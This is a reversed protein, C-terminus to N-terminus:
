QLPIAPCTLSIQVNEQTPNSYASNTQDRQPLSALTVGLNMSNIVNASGWNISGTINYTCSSFSMTQNNWSNVIVPIVNTGDLFEDALLSNFLAQIYFNNKTDLYLVYTAYNNTSKLSWTYFTNPSSPPLPQGPALTVPLVPLNDIPVKNIISGTIISGDEGFILTGNWTYAINFTYVNATWTGTLSYPGGAAIETFNGNSDMSILMSYNLSNLNLNWMKNYGPDPKTPPGVIPFTVSQVIKTPFVPTDTYVNNINSLIISENEGFVISVNQATWNCVLNSPNSLMPLSVGNIFYNGTSNLILNNSGLTWLKSTGSDPNVPFSADYPSIPTQFYGPAQPKPSPSTIKNLSPTTYVFPGPTTTGLPQPLKINGGIIQQSAGFVLYGSTGSMNPTNDNLTFYMTSDSWSLTNIGGINLGIGFVYDGTNGINIFRYLINNTYIEWVRDAQGTPPLPRFTTTNTVDIISSTKNTKSDLCYAKRSNSTPVGANSGPTAGPILCSRISDANPDSCQMTKTYNTDDGLNTFITGDFFTGPTISVTPTCYISYWDVSDFCKEDTCAPSSLYNNIAAQGQSLSPRSLGFPYIDSPSSIITLQAITNNTDQTFQPGSTKKNFLYYLLNNFLDDSVTDRYIRKGTTPDTKGTWTICKKGAMQMYMLYVDFPNDMFENFFALYKTIYTQCTGTSPMDNNQNQIIQVTIPGANYYPDNYKTSIAEYWGNGNDAKENILVNSTDQLEIWQDCKINWGTCEMSFSACENCCRKNSCDVNCCGNDKTPSLTLSDYYSEFLNQIYTFFGPNGSNFNPLGLLGGLNSNFNSAPNQQNSDFPNVYNKSTTVAIYNNLIIEQFYSISYVLIHTYLPYGKVIIECLNSAGPIYLSNLTQIVVSATGQQQTLLQGLSSNTLQSTLYARKTQTLQSNTNVISPDYIGSKMCTTQGQFIISQDCKSPDELDQTCYPPNNPKPCLISTNQYQYTLPYTNQLFASISGLTTSITTLQAVAQSYQIDKGIATIIDDALQSPSPEISEGKNEGSLLNNVPGALWGMGCCALFMTVVSLGAVKLLEKKSQDSFGDEFGQYVAKLFEVTADGIEGCQQAAENSHLDGQMDSIQEQLDENSVGKLSSKWNHSKLIIGHNNLLKITKMKTLSYKSSYYRTKNIKFRNAKVQKQLDTIQNQSSNLQKKLNSVVLSQDNGLKPTLQSQPKQHNNCNKYKYSVFVIVAVLIVFIIIQIILSSKM